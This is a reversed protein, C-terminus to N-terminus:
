AAASLGALAQLRPAHWATLRAGSESMLGERKFEGLLRTVSVPTVGILEAAETRRLRVGQGVSDALFLIFRALRARAPGTSFAGIVRDTDDLAGQWKALILALAVPDSRLIQSLMLVPVRCAVGEGIVQASRRHSQQLMAALGTAGGPGVLRAIREGGQADPVMEKVLGRRLVFLSDGRQGKAFLMQGERLRVEWGTMSEELTAAPKRGCLRCATAQSPSAGFEAARFCPAVAGELDCAPLGQRVRDDM